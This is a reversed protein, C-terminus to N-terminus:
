FQKESIVQISSVNASKNLELISAQIKTLDGVVVVKKFSYMM